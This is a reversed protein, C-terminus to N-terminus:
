RLIQTRVGVPNGAYQRHRFFLFVMHKQTQWGEHLLLDVALNLGLLLDLELANLVVASAVLVVACPLAVEAALFVEVVAPRAAYAAAFSLLVRRHVRCLLRHLPSGCHLLVVRGDALRVASLGPLIPQLSQSPRCPRLSFGSYFPIRALSAFILYFTDWLDKSLQRIRACWQYTSKEYNIHPVANVQRRSLLWLPFIHHALILCSDLSKQSM